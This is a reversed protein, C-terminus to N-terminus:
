IAHKNSFHKQSNIIHFNKGTTKDTFNMKVCLGRDCFDTAVGIRVASEGDYPDICRRTVPITTLPITSLFVGPDVGARGVIVSANVSSCTYCLLFNDDM